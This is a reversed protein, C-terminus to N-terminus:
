GEVSRITWLDGSLDPDTLYELPITFCGTKMGWDKGWSNQCLVTRSPWKIGDRYVIDPGLNYGIACVAHGGLMSESSQPMPVNGTQAVQDSEFSDFVSFGFVFPFGSALCSQIQQVTQLVALYRLVDHKAADMYCQASPRIAFRVPNYPWESEPCAGQQAVVKLGDRLTAGADVHVTGEMLRENYYVFLRSPVMHPAKQIALGLMMAQGIANATCSGLDGQDYVTAVLPHLNVMSPLGATPMPAAFLQDRHDPLDPRWGYKKIKNM